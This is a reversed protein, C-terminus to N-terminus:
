AAIKGSSTNQNNNRASSMKRLAQSCSSYPALTPFSTNCHLTISAIYNNPM